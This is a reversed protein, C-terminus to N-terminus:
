DFTTIKFVKEFLRQATAANIQKIEPVSAPMPAAYFGEAQEPKAEYGSDRTFEHVATESVIDESKYAGAQAQEELLRERVLQQEEYQRVLEAEREQQQQQRRVLRDKQETQQQLFLLQGDRESMDLHQMVANDHQAKRPAVASMESTNAAKEMEEYRVDTRIGDRYAAVNSLPDIPPNSGRSSSSSSQQEASMVMDVRQQKRAISSNPTRPAIASAEAQQTAAKAKAKAAQQADFCMSRRRNLSVIFNRSSMYRMFEAFSVGLGDGSVDMDAFQRIVIDKTGDEQHVETPLGLLSHLLSGEESV